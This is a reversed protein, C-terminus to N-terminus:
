LIFKLAEKDDPGNALSILVPYGAHERAGHGPSYTALITDNSWPVPKADILLCSGPNDFVSTQNGYLINRVLNAMDTRTSM